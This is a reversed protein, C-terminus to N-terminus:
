VYSDRILFKVSVKPLTRLFQIKSKHDAWTLQVVYLTLTEAKSTVAEIAHISDERNAPVTM